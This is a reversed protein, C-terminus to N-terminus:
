LVEKLEYALEVLMKEENLAPTDIVAKLLCRQLEGLDRGKVGMAMLATTTIKLHEKLYPEGSAILARYLLPLQAFRADVAAFTEAVDLFPFAFGGCLALKLAHLDAPMGDAFLVDIRAFDKIFSKGFDFIKAAKQANSQTLHLLAWWRCLLSEPVADLPVLVQQAAYSCGASAHAGCAAGDCATRPASQLTEVAAQMLGDGSIAFPALGGVAILPALASPKAGKLAKDLETRVRPVSVYRLTNARALAATATAEEVAFGLVGAFRYLRLIRLADEEFRQVPVGVARLLKDKLDYRGRYPDIITNGDWAMANVTFDRRSLDVRLDTGFTIVDPHRHDTYDSEARCPTIEVGHWTITGFEGGIPKADPLAAMMQEPTGAATLDWDHVARGLLSDRVAGGIVWSDVGKEKLAAIVYLVNEPIPQKM